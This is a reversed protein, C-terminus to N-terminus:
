GYGVRQSGLIRWALINSHTTMGKELPDEQGLSRVKPEIKMAPLNNIKQAVLLQSILPWLQGLCYSILDSASIFISIKSFMIKWIPISRKQNYDIFLSKQLSASSLARSYHIRAVFYTPLSGTLHECGHRGNGQQSSQM